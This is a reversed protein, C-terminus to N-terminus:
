IIESLKDLKELKRRRVEKLSFYPDESLPLADFTILKEIIVYGNSDIQGLSRPRFVFEIGSNILSQLLKGRETKLIEIDGILDRNIFRLNHISHSVNSLQIDVYSFNEDSIEGFTGDAFNKVYPELINQTYIRGNKNRINLPILIATFM